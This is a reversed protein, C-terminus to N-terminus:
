RLRYHRFADPVVNVHPLLGRHRLYWLLSGGACVALVGMVVRLMRALLRSEEVTFM